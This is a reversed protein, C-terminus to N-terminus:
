SGGAGPGEGREVWDSESKKGVERVQSSQGHLLSCRDLTRGHETYGEIATAYM